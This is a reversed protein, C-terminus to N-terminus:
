KEELHRFLFSEKLRILIRKRTEESKIVIRPQFDEKKNYEGYVEASVAARTRVKGKPPLTPQIVDEEEDSTL